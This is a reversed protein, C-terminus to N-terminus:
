RKLRYRRNRNAGIAEVIGSGIMRKLLEKIRTPKLELLVEFDAVSGEPHDTLFEIISNMQRESKITPKKDDTKIMAKKDDSKSLPLLLTVRDPDFAETFTPANWKQEKWARFINPIGSGAREGIDIFNFMKLMTSNRLDSVGGSLAAQLEIRLNGPNPM